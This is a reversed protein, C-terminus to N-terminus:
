SKLSKKIRYYKDVSIGVKRCADTISLNKKKLVSEVRKIKVLSEKLRKADNAQKVARAKEM